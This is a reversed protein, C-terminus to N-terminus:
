EAAQEEVSKDKRSTRRQEPAESTFMAYVRIGKGKPDAEDVGVVRFTVPSGNAAYRDNARRVSNSMDKVAKGAIHFSPMSTPNKVKFDATADFPHHELKATKKRKEAASVKIVFPVGVDIEVEGNKTEAVTAVDFSDDGIVRVGEGEAVPAGLTQVEQQVQVETSVEATQTMPVIGTFEEAPAFTPDNAMETNISTDAFPAAMQEFVPAAPATEEVPPAVPAAETYTVEPAGVPATDVQAFDPIEFDVRLDAITAGEVLTAGVNGDENHLRKNTKIYKAKVLAAVEASDAPVIAYSGQESGAVVAEFVSVLYAINLQSM